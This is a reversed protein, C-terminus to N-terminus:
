SDLFVQNETWSKLVGLIDFLLGLSELYLDFEPVLAVPGLHNQSWHRGMAFKVQFDSTELSGRQTDM